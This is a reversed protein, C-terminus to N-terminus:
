SIMQIVMKGGKKRWLSLYLDPTETVTGGDGPLVSGLDGDGDEFYFELKGAKYKGLQTITDFVTFSTFKISPIPPLQEIKRCSSLSLGIVIIVVLYKLTKM